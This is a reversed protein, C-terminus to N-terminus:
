FFWDLLVLFLGYGGHVHQDQVTTLEQPLTELEMIHMLPLIEPEQLLIELEKILEQLLIELEMMLAKLLVGQETIFTAQFVVLALKNVVDLNIFQLQILLQLEKKSLQSMITTNHLIRM